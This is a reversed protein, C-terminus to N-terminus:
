SLFKLKMYSLDYQSTLILSNNIICIRAKWFIIFLGINVWISFIYKFIKSSLSHNHKDETSAVERLLVILLSVSPRLPLSSFLDILDLVTFNFVSTTHQHSLLEISESIAIIGNAVSFLYFVAVTSTIRYIFPFDFLLNLM